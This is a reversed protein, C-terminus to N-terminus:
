DRTRLCRCLPPSPRPSANLAFPCRLLFFSFSPPPFPPLSALSLPSPSLNHRCSKASPVAHRCGGRHWARGAVAEPAGDGCYMPLRAAPLTLRGGQEKGERWALATGEGRSNPPKRCHAALLCRLSHLFRPRRFITRSARRSDAPLERNHFIGVIKKRKQHSMFSEDFAAIFRGVGSVSRM